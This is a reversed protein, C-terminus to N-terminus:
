FAPTRAPCEGRSCPLAQKPLPAQATLSIKGRFQCAMSRAKADGPKPARMRRKQKMSRGIQLSVPMFRPARHTSRPRTSYGEALEVPDLDGADIKRGMEAASLFRWDGM